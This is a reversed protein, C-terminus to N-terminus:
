LRGPRVSVWFRFGKSGKPYSKLNSYIVPRGCALYYFLKIPLCHTNEVDINRLDFFLHTDGITKCFELFPLPKLINININEKLDSTLIDFHLQDEMKPFNGIIKLRFQMEPCKLASTKIAGIVADIGKDPNIKGTYLLNIESNIEKFPYYQIYDTDPYYPLKCYRKWFFLKRYEISKYYEGFIFSDSRIGALLNFTLLVFFKLIRQVGKKHQLHIKSPYWETIDYIINITHDKKYRNAAFVALPSDCIIIGPSFLTLNTQIRDMKEDRSLNTDNFSNISINDCEKICDEKTSIIM